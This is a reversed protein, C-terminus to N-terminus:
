ITDIYPFDVEAWMLTQVQPVEGVLRVQAVQVIDVIAYDPHERCRLGQVDVV